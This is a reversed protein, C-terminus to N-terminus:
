VAPAGVLPQAVAVRAVCLVLLQVILLPNRVGAAQMAPVVATPDGLGQQARALLQPGAPPLAADAM